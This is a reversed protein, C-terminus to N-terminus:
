LMFANTFLGVLHNLLDLYKSGLRLETGPIGCFVSLLGLLQGRVEVCASHRTCVCM